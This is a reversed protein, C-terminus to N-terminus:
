SDFTLFKTFFHNILEGDKFEFSAEFNEERLLKPLWYSDDIWMEPYPIQDIEFWKPLMETSETIEGSWKEVLFVHCDMLKEPKENSKYIFHLLGIQRFDLIEVGFEELAERKLSEEITEDKFEIKDGVKGGFGNWKEKGFGAKKLGLCIEAIEGIDNRKILFGLTVRTM